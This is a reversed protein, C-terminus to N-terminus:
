RVRHGGPIPQFQVEFNLVDVLDRAPIEVATLTYERTVKRTSTVGCRSVDRLALLLKEISQKIDLM